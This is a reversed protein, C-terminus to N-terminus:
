SEVDLRELEDSAYHRVPISVRTGFRSIAVCPQDFLVLFPHTPSLTTRPRSLIRGTQGFEGECHPAEDCDAALAHLVVRVHDGVALHRTPINSPMDM